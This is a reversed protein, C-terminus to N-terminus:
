SLGGTLRDFRLFLCLFWTVSLKREGRGGMRTGQGEVAVAVWGAALTMEAQGDDDGSRSEGAEGHGAESEEPGEIGTRMEPGCHPSRTMWRVKTRVAAFPAVLPYKSADRKRTWTGGDGAALQHSCPTMQWHCSAQDTWTVPREDWTITEASLVDHM